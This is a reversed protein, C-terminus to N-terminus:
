FEIGRRAAAGHDFPNRVSAIDSVYDAIDALNGANRGTMVVEISANKIADILRGILAGDALQNQVVYTIEDLVLLTKPPASQLIDIVHAIIRNHEEKLEELEAAFLNQWFDFQRSLRILVTGLQHIEQLEGSEGGKLFQVFVVKWGQGLARVSLGVAATTKGKGNGTYLQIM